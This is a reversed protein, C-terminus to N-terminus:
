RLIPKLKEKVDPLLQYNTLDFHVPTITVYNNKIFMVDTDQDEDNDVINGALWFYIRGRPDMRKQFVDEYRRIGLKTVQIGQIEAEPVAPVNVNLMADPPLNWEKFEKCLRQTLSAAYRYDAQFDFSNLSVAISPIGLIIGEIAASVTGSYLVDTGLNGGRNIGSVVLDPPEELLACVALKVCDTPTGDIVWGQTPSDPFIYEAVRIPYDVTIGHGTASRERDPAVVTVVAIEELARRLTDLGPAQIGDDNTLLIRM